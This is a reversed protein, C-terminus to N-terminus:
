EARLVRVRRYLDSLKADHIGLEKLHSVTNELYEASSGLYGKATALRAAIADPQLRGAYREHDRNITFTLGSVPGDETHVRVWTPIYSDLVMERSWLIGLEEELKNPAIRFAAGCCAGGRDLALMLGPNEPSGRGLPTWICYARHFGHIRGRRKEAFELAPNWVLSGYGFVWVEDTGEPAAALTADLSAALEEQTKPVANVVHQNQQLLDYLTGNLLSERNLM